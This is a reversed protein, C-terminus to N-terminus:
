LQLQLQLKLQLQLQLQLQILRRLLYLLITRAPAPEAPETPEAPGALEASSSAAELEAASSAAELEAATSAAEPEAASSAAEPEAPSSSAAELEAASSAAGLEAAAACASTVLELRLSEAATAEVGDGSGATSLPVLAMEDNRVVAEVNDGHVVHYNTPGDYDVGLLACKVNGTLQVDGDTWQVLENHRFIRIGMADVEEAYQTPPPYTHQNCIWAPPIM